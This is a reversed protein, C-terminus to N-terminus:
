SGCEASSHTIALNCFHEYTGLLLVAFPPLRGSKATYVTLKMQGVIVKHAVRYRNVCYGIGPLPQSLLHAVERLCKYSILTVLSGRQLPPLRDPLKAV